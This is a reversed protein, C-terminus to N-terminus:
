HKDNNIVMLQYQGINRLNKSSLDGYSPPTSKTCSLVRNSFRDLPRESFISDTGLNSGLGETTCYWCALWQAVSAGERGNILFSCFSWSFGHVCFTVTSKWRRSDTTWKTPSWSAPFSVQNVHLRSESLKRMCVWLFFWCNLLQWPMSSRKELKKPFRFAWCIQASKLSEQGFKLTEQGCSHQFFIQNRFM